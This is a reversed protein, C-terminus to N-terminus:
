QAVHMDLSQASILTHSTSLPKNSERFMYAARAPEQRHGGLLYSCLPSIALGPMYDAIQSALLQSFRTYM